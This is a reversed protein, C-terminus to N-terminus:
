AAEKCGLQMEPLIGGTHFHLKMMRAPLEEEDRNGNFPLAIEGRLPEPAALPMVIEGRLPEPAALGRGKWAFRGRSVLTCCTTCYRRERLGCFLNEM